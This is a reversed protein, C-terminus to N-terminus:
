PRLDFTTTAVAECGLFATLMPCWKLHAQMLISVSLFAHLQIQQFIIILVRPYAVQQSGTEQQGCTILVETTTTYHESLMRRQRFMSGM